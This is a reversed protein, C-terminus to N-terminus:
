THKHIFCRKRTVKGAYVRDDGGPIETFCKEGPECGGGHSEGLKWRM